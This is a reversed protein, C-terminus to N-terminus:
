LKINYFKKIWFKNNKSKRLYLNVLYTKEKLNALMENEISLMVLESSPLKVHEIKKKNKQFLKLIWNHEFYRFWTLPSYKDYIPGIM